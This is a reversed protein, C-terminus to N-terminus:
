QAANIKGVLYELGVLDGVTMVATISVGLVGHLNVNQGTLFLNPIKTRTAIVSETMFRIDKQLGYMSGDPTDLYDRFTLPTCADAKQVANKLGPIVQATEHIIEEIRQRKFDEYREGRSERASTTRFTDKWENSADAHLWTLISISTAFGSHERDENFFIGFSSPSSLIQEHVDEWADETKHYYINHNLYRIMQPKLSINVMFSSMTNKLSAVRKITVPRILSSEILRYTVQPHLNSIFQKAFFREGNRDEIYTMAGNEEKMSVVEINRLVRGGNRIIEEQLLRAIQTSGDACKWSSEIYSNEILAHMYFPTHEFNGGHLLNNGTLVHTLLTNETFSNLKERLGALGAKRKDDVNGFTMNYMPFHECVRKMEKVYANINEEEKPFCSGMTEAFLEHGQALCYRKDKLIIEDFCDIDLRKLALKDMLGLYTFIKYLTQGKDLSGIYHVASEFLKKDFGFSQLCGGIQKNKELVCVKYGEKSLLAASLLGGLGAGVVVIDYNQEQM